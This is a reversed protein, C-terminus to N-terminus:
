AKVWESGNWELVVDSSFVIATFKLMAVSGAKIVLTPKTYEATSDTSFEGYLHIHKPSDAVVRSLDVAVGNVIVAFSSIDLQEGTVLNCDETFILQISDKSESWSVKDVVATHLVSWRDLSASYVLSCDRKFVYAKGGAYIISGMKIVITPVPYSSSSTPQPFAFALKKPTNHWRIESFNFAEGNATVDMLDYNFTTQDESDFGETILFQITGTTSWDTTDFKLDGAYEYWYVIGESEKVFIATYNKSIKYSDGNEAVFLSGIKVILKEGLKVASIDCNINVKTNVSTWEVSTINIKTNGVEININEKSISTDAAFDVAENLELQLLGRTSYVIKKVSVNGKITVWVGDVITIDAYVIEGNVFKGSGEAYVGLSDFTGLSSCNYTLGTVSAIKEGNVVIAYSDANEVADWSITKNENDVTITTKGLTKAPAIYDFVFELVNEGMDMLEGADTKNVYVFQVGSLTDIDLRSVDLLYETKGTEITLEGLKCTYDANFVSIKQIESGITVSMKFAIYSVDGIDVNEPFRVAVATCVGWSGKSVTTKIVGNEYVNNVSNPKYGATESGVNVAGDILKTYLEDDFSAYEGEKAHLGYIYWANESAIFSIGDGNACVTIYGKGDPLNISNDSIVTTEGNIDVTYSTANEVMDWLVKSNETRLNTPTPLKDAISISDIYLNVSKTNNSERGFAIQINKIPSTPSTPEDSEESYMRLAKARDYDLYYTTWKGTILPTKRETAASYETDFQIKQNGAFAFFDQLGEGEVFVRVAIYKGSLDSWEISKALRLRISTYNWQTFSLGLRMVGDAGEFSELWEQSYEPANWYTSIDASRVTNLYGTECFDSFVGEQLDDDTWNPDKILWSVSNEAKNGSEDEASVLYTFIGAESVAYSGNMQNYSVEHKEGGYTAFYLTKKTSVESADEIAVTPLFGGETEGLFIDNPINTFTISPSESDTVTFEVALKVNESYFYVVTYKGPKLAFYSYQSESNFGEEGTVRYTISYSVIEGKANEVHASPLQIEDKYDFTKEESFATDLVIKYDKEGSGGGCAVIGMCVFITMLVFLIKALLNNLKKM